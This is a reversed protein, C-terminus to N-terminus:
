FPVYNDHLTGDPLIAGSLFCGILSTEFLDANLLNSGAMWTGVYGVQLDGDMKPISFVCNRLEASELNAGTLVCSSSIVYRHGTGSIFTSNSLKSNSLDAGSLDVEGLRLSELNANHFKTFVCLTPQRFAYGIATSNLPYEHRRRSLEDSYSRDIGDLQAGRLDAGTLDAHSLNTGRLNAGRLNAGRLNAGVFSAGRLQASSLDCGSLDLNSYNGWSKLELGNVFFKKEDDAM